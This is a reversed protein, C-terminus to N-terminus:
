QVDIETSVPLSRNGAGDIATVALTYHGAASAQTLLFFFPAAAQTLADSAGQVPTETTLSAPGSFALALKLGGLGDPDVVNVTGNAQQGRVVPSTTIQLASVSPAVGEGGCATWATAVGIWLVLSRVFKM